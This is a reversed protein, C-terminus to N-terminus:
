RHRADGELPFGVRGAKLINENDSAISHSAVITNGERSVFTQPRDKFKLGWGQRQRYEYQLECRHLNILPHILNASNQLNVCWLPGILDSVSLSKGSRFADYPPEPMPSRFSIAPPPSVAKPAPQPEREVEIAVRAEGKSESLPLVPEPVPAKPEEESIRDIRALDEETFELDEFHAFYDEDEAVDQAMDRFTETPVRGNQNLIPTLTSAYVWTRFRFAQSKSHDSAIAGELM